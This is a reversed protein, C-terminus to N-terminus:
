WVGLLGPFSVSIQNRSCVPPLHHKLLRFTFSPGATPSESFATGLPPEALHVESLQGSHRLKAHPPTLSLLNVRRKRWGLRFQLFLSPLPLSPFSVLPTSSPTLSFCLCLLSNGPVWLRFVNM